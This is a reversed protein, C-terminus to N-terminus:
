GEMEMRLARLTPSPIKTRPRWARMREAHRQTRQTLQTLTLSLGIDRAGPHGKPAIPAIPMPTKRFFGTM